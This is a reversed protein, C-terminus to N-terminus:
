NPFVTEMTLFSDSSLLLNWPCPMVWYCVAPVMVCCLFLPCHEGCVCPQTQIIQRFFINNPLM